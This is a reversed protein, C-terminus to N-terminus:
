GRVIQQHIVLVSGSSPFDKSSIYDGILGLEESESESWESLGTLLVPNIGQKRGVIWLDYGEDDNNSHSMSQISAITEEGNKVVVERYVVRNNRENKVWFWTVIGDDLKKEREKDGVYSDSLFRIVTLTVDQNAALMIDAYVLAERADAGGLFLLAFQQGSRRFSSPAAAVNSITEILNSTDNGKDVFIAISCPAHNLVQSNMTQVSIGKKYVNHKKFPLIILSAENELAVLCIDQFMTKTPSVVTFLKLKLFEGKLEQYRQLVNITHTWQYKSPMEQKDHDIFLPYARGVLEFLRLAHVIFPSTSNPNSIDLVNILGNITEDDQICLVMSFKSDPLHHQINRRQNVIYPRTPDYVTSILPTFTATLAVTMLVLLTFGPINVIKKDMFHVFVILEVQGRLSMILSLALGERFPLQWYYTAVWTSLFKTLYGTLVMFFLPALRSWDSASMAFVDTHTGVMLFSFPLLFDTMITKSKQVLTAGLPPGDPIVLGLWLPGNAIAMGSMDTVFGLVFVGLLIVVVYSQEVPHGEPTNNHIWMMMPRVCFMMFMFVMVLSITYWIANKAGTEGHKAAEFIVISCTGLVDGILAMSLAMRGVHSNLLNLDKLINHLVPFTTIGFYASIVGMSAIRSLEKDMNKRMYLSVLFTLVSPISIGVLATYLHLKGSKKLLTPDCKVGYIFFFFMFGMIGLNNVLFQATDPMVNRQFWGSRGMVSPGLIIGGLIQSILKPQKLPKFLMRLIRTVVFVLILHLMLLSFTSTTLISGDGNFIGRPRFEQVTQCTLSFSTTFDENSDDVNDKFSEQLLIRSRLVHHHNYTPFIRTM